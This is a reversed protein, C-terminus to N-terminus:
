KDSYSYWYCLYLFSNEVTQVNWGENELITNFSKLYKHFENEYFGENKILEKINPIIQQIRDKLSNPVFVINSSNLIDLLEKKESDAFTAWEGNGIVVFAKKDFIVVRNNTGLNRRKTATIKEM